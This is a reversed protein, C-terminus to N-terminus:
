PNSRAAGAAVRAPWVFRAAEWTLRAAAGVIFVANVIHLASLAQTNAVALIFQIIMLVLLGINIGTIRWPMRAAFALGLAVLIAIGILDGVGRHADYPTLGAFAFVGWGALYLQLILAGDIIGLWGVYFMRLYRVM